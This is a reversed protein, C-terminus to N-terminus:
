KLKKIQKKEKNNKNEFDINSVESARKAEFKKILIKIEPHLKQNFYIQESLKM